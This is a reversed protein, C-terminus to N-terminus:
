IREQGKREMLRMFKLAMSHPFVKSLIFFAKMLIGYVSISRGMMCDRIALRVVKKPDAMAIKKYLPVTGTKEAVEWFETRVPGPCVATVCINRHRLEEGLARSYSLVFSKTAAYVAFGPQPLFAASSAFQMIRSNKSMYPLALATVACLAECNLRIMGVACEAPQAEIKGMKGFGASNVLFKIDPEEEALTAKLVDWAYEQTLDLSIVRIPVPVESQLKQLEGARRAVAWIEDLGSFRDAMQILCEKGLGSSAGTILAIKM